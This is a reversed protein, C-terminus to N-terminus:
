YFLLNLDGDSLFLSVKEETGKFTLRINGNKM